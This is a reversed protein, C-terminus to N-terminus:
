KGKREAGYKANFAPSGFAPKGTSAPKPKNAKLRRDAPTSTKPKGGM